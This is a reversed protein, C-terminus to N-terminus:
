DFESLQYSQRQVQEGSSFLTVNVRDDLFDFRIDDEARVRGMQGNEFITWTLSDRFMICRNQWRTGDSPRLYSTQVMDGDLYRGEIISPEQAMLMAISARCAIVKQEDTLEEIESEAPVSAISESEEGPTPYASPGVVSVYVLLGCLLALASLGFGKRSWGFAYPKILGACAALICVVLISSIAQLISNDSEM